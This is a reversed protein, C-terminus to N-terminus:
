LCPKILNSFCHQIKHDIKDAMFTEARVFIYVDVHLHAYLHFSPIM